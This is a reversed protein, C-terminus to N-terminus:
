TDSRKSTLWEYADTFSTFANVQLGRNQACLAFFGAFDFREVPCLVATKLSKSFAKSFNNSVEAALYWLDTMSMESETNRTDLIIDYDILPAAALAVELLLKKSEELDLKGELNAKVFDHAHVIRINAPM